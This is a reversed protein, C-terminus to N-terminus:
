KILKDIHEIIKLQREEMLKIKGCLETLLDDRHVDAEIRKKWSNYFRGIGTGISVMAVIVATVFYASSLLNQNTLIAGVTIPASAGLAGLISLFVTAEGRDNDLMLM